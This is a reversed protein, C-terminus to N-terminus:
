VHARGIEVLAMFRTLRLLRHHDGAEYAINGYRVVGHWGSFAIVGGLLTAYAHVLVLTGYDAAGLSRAAIVLYVLSMLGAGAKGGLLLGLNAFIRAVGGREAVVASM